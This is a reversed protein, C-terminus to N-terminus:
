AAVKFVDASDASRAREWGEREAKVFIPAEFTIGHEPTDTWFSQQPPQYKFNSKFAYEDVGKLTGNVKFREMNLRRHWHGAIMVDYPDNAAQQRERKRADGIMMPSLEAAIGSGGRFQDGHTQLYRTRYIRFSLDFADSVTFSVRKDGARLFDRQLLTGMLWDFNDRVGGKARPKKSLRPHNGVVVPVYVRGFREALMEIGAYMPDLWYALSGCLTDENTEKLEEHIQGSFMDGSIPLVIGPYTVGKLYDDCLSITKEFFRKLRATAIKRNYCNLYNVQKPDVDEDFHADSLHAVPMAQKPRGVKPTYTWEPAHRPFDAAAAVFDQYKQNLVQASLTEKLQKRLQETDIQKRRQEIPSPERLAELADKAARLEWGLGQAVYEPRVSLGKGRSRLFDRVAQKSADTVKPPNSM